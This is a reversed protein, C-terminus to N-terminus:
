GFLPSVVLSGIVIRNGRDRDVLDRTAPQGSHLTVRATVLETLEKQGEETGLEELDGMLCMWRGSQFRRGGIEMPLLLNGNQVWRSNGHVM